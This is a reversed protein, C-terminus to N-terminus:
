GGGGRGQEAFQKWGGDLAQHTIRQAFDRICHCVACDGLAHEVVYLWARRRQEFAHRIQIHTVTVGTTGWPGDIGKVEIYRTEGDRGISVIDYGPNDPHRVNMDKADCGAESEMKLVFQIAAEEVVRNHEEDVPIPNGGTSYTVLRPGDGFRRRAFGQPTGSRIEGPSWDVHKLGPQVAAAEDPREEDVTHDGAGGEVAERVIEGRTEVDDSKSHVGAREVASGPSVRTPVVGRSQRADPKEDNRAAGEAIQHAVGAVPTPDADGESSPDVAQNGGIAAPSLRERAEPPLDHVSLRGLVDALEATNEAGLINGLILGEQPGLQLEDALTAGVANWTKRTVEESGLYLCRSHEEGLLRADFRCEATANGIRVRLANVVATTPTSLFRFLGAALAAEFTKRQSHYAYRAVALMRESIRREARPVRAAAVGGSDEVTVADRLREVDLDSMLDEVDGHDSPDLALFAVAPQDSFQKEISPDDSLVVCVTPDNPSLWRGDTCLLLERRVIEGKTDIESARPSSESLTHSLGRLALRVFGKSQTIPENAIKVSELVDLWAEATLAKPVQLGDIFFERFASWHPKLEHRPCHRGLAGGTEWCVEGSKVWGSTSGGLWILPFKGFHERLLAAASSFRDSLFSYLRGVQKKDVSSEAGGDSLSRLTDLVSSITPETVIGCAEAFEESTLELDLYHQNDGFVARCDVTDLFCECLRAPGRSSKLKIARLDRVIEADDPSLRVRELAPAYEDTWNEDVIQIFRRKAGDSTRAFLKRSEQRWGCHPTEGQKSLNVGPTDRARLTGILFERWIEPTRNAGEGGVTSKAYRESIFRDPIESMWLSELDHPDSYPLGVYLNSAKKAVRMKPDSSRTLIKLNAILYGLPIGRGGSAGLYEYRNDIIYCAHAVLEEDSLRAGSPDNMAEHLPLLYRDIARKAHLQPVGVSDLFAAAAYGPAMDPSRALVTSLVPLRHEFGYEGEADLRQFAPGSAPSRTTKDQMRLIPADQLARRETDNLTASALVNYLKGFWKDPRKSMWVKDDLFKRLDTFKFRRVGLLKLERAVGLGADDVLHLSCRRAIEAPGVLDAFGTDDRLVAELPKVWAGSATPICQATKLREIAVSLVPELLPETLARRPTLMGLAMVGMPPGKCNALLADALCEGLARGLTLNWEGRQIGDRSSTLLLDANFTFKLETRKVPLFAYIWGSGDQRVVGKPDIPLAVKVQSRRFGPRKAERVQSVDADRDHVQYRLEQRPFPARATRVDDVRVLTVVGASSARELSLSGGRIEDVYRVSHLKRLFFLIHREAELEEPYGEPFVHRGGFPLRIVTGRHDECGDIWEPIIRGLGKHAASDFRFHFGNSHVEPRDTVGFVAKFGLGKEGIFRNKDASKESQAFTCIAQVNSENFGQENSEFLIADKTRRITVTPAVGASYSCDDANQLLERVFLSPSEYQEESVLPALRALAEKSRGTDSLWENRIKEIVDRPSM